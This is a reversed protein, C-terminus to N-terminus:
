PELFVIGNDTLAGYAGPTLTQQQGHAVTVNNTGPAASFIAPLPPMPSPYSSVTGVQGGSNTLSNTDVAGVQALNGVSIAPACLTHGLDLGDQAGVVLQPSTGSSTAVGINGGVSHDGTGLTVSKAAYVVFGSISPSATATIAASSTATPATLHSDSCGAVVALGLAWVFGLRKGVLMANETRRTM